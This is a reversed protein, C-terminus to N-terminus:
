ISLSKLQDSVNSWDINNVNEAVMSTHTNWNSESWLEFKKVQGSLVVKKELQARERLMPPVLIRGGADLKVETAHDMYLRRIAQAADDFSPLAQLKEEVVEWESMPYLLLCKNKDITVVMEDSENESLCERYKSPMAM